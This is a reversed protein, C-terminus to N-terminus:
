SFLDGASPLPILIAAGEISSLDPLSESHVILEQKVHKVQKFKRQWEEILKHDNDIEKQQQRIFAGLQLATQKRNVLEQQLRSNYNDLLSIADSVTNKLEIAEKKDKIDKMANLDSVKSPLDAIKRRVDADSSASKELEQLLNILDNPEPAQINTGNQTLERLVEDRLSKPVVSKASILPEENNHHTQLEDSSLKRKKLLTEQDYDSNQPGSNLKTINIKSKSSTEFNKPSKTPTNPLEAPSNQLSNTIQKTTHLIRRLNEISEDPYIKRDKWINLIRELTFRMKDDSYKATSEISEPLVNGFEQLYEYGKKRSNQLIDNSLYILTLKRECNRAAVLEKLWTTVVARSHKRHHILWLSLTQVSQQTNNLEQLKKLLTAETFSM